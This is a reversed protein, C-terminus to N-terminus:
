SEEIKAGLRAGIGFDAQLFRGLGKIEGALRNYREQQEPDHIDHLDCMETKLKDIDVMIAERLFTSWRGPRDAHPDVDRVLENLAKQYEQKTWTM